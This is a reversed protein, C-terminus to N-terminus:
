ILNFSGDPSHAWLLCQLESFSRTLNSLLSAVQKENNHKIKTDNMAATWKRWQGELNLQLLVQLQSNDNRALFYYEVCIISADVLSASRNWTGWYNWLGHYFIVLSDFITWRPQCANAQNNRHRVSVWVGRWSLTPWLWWHDFLSQHNQRWSTPEACQQQLSYTVYM